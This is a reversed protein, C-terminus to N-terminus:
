EVECVVAKPRGAEFEPVLHRDVEIDFMKGTAMNKVRFTVPWSWEWGHQRHCIGAHYEAASREDLADYIWDREDADQETEDHLARWVAFRPGPTRDARAM